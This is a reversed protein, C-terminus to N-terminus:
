STNHKAPLTFDSYVASIRYATFVYVGSVYVDTQEVDAPRSYHKERWSSSEDTRSRQQNVM